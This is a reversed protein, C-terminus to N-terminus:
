LCKFNNNVKLRKRKLINRIKCHKHTQKESIELQIQTSSCLKRRFAISEIESLTHSKNRKCSPTERRKREKKERKSKAIFIIHQNYKKLLNFFFYDGYVALCLQTDIM